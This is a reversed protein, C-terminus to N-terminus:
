RRHGAADTPERLAQVPGPASFSARLAVTCLASEPM